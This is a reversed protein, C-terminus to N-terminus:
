VRLPDLEDRDDLAHHTRWRHKVWALERPTTHLVDFRAELTPLDVWLAEAADSNIGDHALIADMVETVKPLLWQAATARVYREAAPPQCGHHGRVHHVIEHALSCRRGPQHLTDNLWITRAGDTLSWVDDAMAAFVIDVHPLHDRLFRWPHPQSVGQDM